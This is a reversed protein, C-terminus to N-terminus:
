RCATSAMLCRRSSSRRVSRACQRRDAAQRHMPPPRSSHRTRSSRSNSSSRKSGSGGSPQSPGANSRQPQRMSSATRTELTQQPGRLMDSIGAARARCALNHTKVMWTLHRQGDCCLKVSASRGSSQLRLLPAMRVEGTSDAAGTSRVAVMSPTCRSMAAQAILQEAPLVGLHLM